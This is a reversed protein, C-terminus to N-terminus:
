GPGRDSTTGKSVIAACDRLSRITHARERLLACGAEFPADLDGPTGKSLRLSGDAIVEFIDSTETPM